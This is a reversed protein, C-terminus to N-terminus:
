PDVASLTAYVVVNGLYGTRKTFGGGCTILRLEPRGGANGYVKGDPFSKKDYVEVADVTFVATRGDARDVEVTRGKTLAGLRFFVAPGTRTDVHGALVATGSSGPSAGGGYWGALDPRDAPPPQLAGAPDLDLRTMPANVGVAPIRLRVPDSPPLARVADPEAPRQTAPAPVPTPAPASAPGPAASPSAASPSTVSPPPAPSPTPFAQAASPQPPREPHTGRGVLLLGLALACGLALASPTPRRGRTPSGPGTEM